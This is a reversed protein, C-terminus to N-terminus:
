SVDGLARDLAAVFADIEDEGMATSLAGMGRPSLYIGENLLAVFLRALRAPDGTMFSRYDHIDAATFHINFLSGVGMMQGTIGRQQLVETAGARLRKGLADLKAFAAEDLMEMAALGAASALPNGQFTGSHSVYRGAGRQLPNVVDMVKESGGLAAISLGGGIIKGMTTLDPVIDYMQQAGGPGLRLTIIEDCILVISHRATIERLFTLFGDRPEIMGSNAMMPEFIVAALDDKNEEILRATAEKDNFPLVVIADLNAQPLGAFEPLARPREAPGADEVRPHVSISIAEHNGHFAGEFKAIKRRGTYARSVHLAFMVAETGSACFRVKDVGPVRERILESLAIEPESPAPFVTGRAAQETMAQLLRPHAHGHILATYNGLFDLYENGDLDYMRCGEGRVMYTPHPAFYYIGRGVGGPQSRLNREYMERSRPTREAYRSLLADKSDIGAPTAM